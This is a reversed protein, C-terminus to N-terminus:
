SLAKRETEAVGHNLAVEAGARYGEAIADSYRLKRSPKKLAVVTFRRELAKQAEAQADQDRLPAFIERLRMKLRFVMGAVFDAVAQRKTALTRRRKYFAGAKFERIAGEVARVCIDRLYLAIDPGPERGVFLVCEDVGIIVASNTCGAITAYLDSRWTARTTKEPASAETQRLDAESIGAEAMLKAALEAAALAEAETCGAARTKARLGEIKGKLRPDIM